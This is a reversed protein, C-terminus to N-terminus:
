FRRHPDMISTGNRANWLFLPKPPKILTSLLWSWQYPFRRQLQPPPCYQSFRMRRSPATHDGGKWCEVLQEWRRWIGFQAWEQIAVCLDYHCRISDYRCEYSTAAEAGGSEKGVRKGSADGYLLHWSHCLVSFGSFVLLKNFRATCLNLKWPTINDRTTEYHKRRKQHALFLFDFNFSVQGAADRFFTGRNSVIENIWKKKRKEKIRSSFYESVALSTKAVDVISRKKVIM